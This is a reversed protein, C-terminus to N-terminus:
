LKINGNEINKQFEQINFTDWTKVIELIMKLQPILAETEIRQEKEHLEGEVHYKSKQISIEFGFRDTNHVIVNNNRLYITNVSQTSEAEYSLEDLFHSIAKKM